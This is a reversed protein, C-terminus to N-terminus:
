PPVIWSSDDETLVTNFALQELSVTAGKYFEQECSNVYVNAAVVSNHKKDM